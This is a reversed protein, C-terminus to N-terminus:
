QNQWESRLNKIYSDISTNKWISKGLGRTQATWNKPKPEAIVKKTPYTSVITWLICDGAQLQLSTRVQSPIVVQNKSSMISQIQQM